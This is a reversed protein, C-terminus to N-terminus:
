YQLKTNACIIFEIRMNFKKRKRMLDRYINPCLLLLFNNKKTLLKSKLKDWKLHIFLSNQFSAIFGFIVCKFRHIFEGYWLYLMRDLTFPLFVSINWRFLYFHGMFELVFFFCVWILKIVDRARWGVWFGIFFMSNLWVLWWAVIWFGHM